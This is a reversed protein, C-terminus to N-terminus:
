LALVQLLHLQLRCQASSPYGANQVEMGHCHPCTAPHHANEFITDM